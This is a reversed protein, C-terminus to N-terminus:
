NYLAVGLVSCYEMKMITAFRFEQMLMNIRKFIRKILTM